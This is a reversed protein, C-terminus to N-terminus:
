DKKQTKFWLETDNFHKSELEVPPPCLNSPELPIPEIAKLGKHEYAYRWEEEVRPSEKAHRSWCLYFIERQDIEKLITTRWDQGSCLNEVDLFLNIGPCIKKIGQKILLVENRDKSSYSIFANKVDIRQMSVNYDSCTELNITFKMTAVYFKNIYIKLDFVLNTKPCRRLSFDFYFKIFQGNWNLSQKADHIIIGKIDKSDLEVSIIDNTENFNVDADSSSHVFMHGCCPCMRQSSLGSLRTGCHPCFTYIENVPTNYEERAKEKLHSFKQNYVILQIVQSEAPNIKQPAFVSFHIGSAEAEDPYKNTESTSIKKCVSTLNAKIKNFNFM